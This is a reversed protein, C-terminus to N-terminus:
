SAKTYSPIPPAAHPAPSRQPLQRTHLLLFRGIHEIAENAEPLLGAFLHWAHPLDHWLKLKVPVDALHLADALRTTDSLLCETTSAHLLTPPLGTHDGFVPSAYPHAPDHDRLYQRVVSPFGIPNLMSDRHANNHLSLGTGSLDTWPSIGIAAAPLPLGLDRTKLLMAFTLGGGASDGAVAIHRPDYGQELLGLYAAVADEVAAPFPNEPALRYDAAFLRSQSAQAIRWTLNRHTQPSCLIYAGGHLYLVVHKPHAEEFLLWEGPVGGLQEQKAQIHRPLRGLQQSWRSLRERVGVIHREKVEKIDHQPRLTRRLFWQFAQARLSM